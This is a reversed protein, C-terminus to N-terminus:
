DVLQIQITINKLEKTIMTIKILLFFPDIYNSRFGGYFGNILFYHFIKTTFILPIEM